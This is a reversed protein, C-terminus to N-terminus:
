LGEDIAHVQVFQAEELQQFITRVINGSGKYFHGPMMGRNRKGGYHGRLKSVGIPGMAGTKRLISAARMYWWEPSTPAREKHVGTKVWGAWQPPAMCKVKKLETSLHTILADVPVDHMTTM